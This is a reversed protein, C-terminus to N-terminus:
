VVMKRHNEIHLIKMMAVVAHWPITNFPALSGPVQSSSHSDSSTQGKKYLSVGTIAMAHTQYILIYIYKNYIYIDHTYMYYIFIHSTYM